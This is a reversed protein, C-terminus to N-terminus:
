LGKKLCIMHTKSSLTYRTLDSFGEDATDSDTVVITMDCPYLNYIFTTREPDYFSRLKCRSHIPYEDDRAPRIPSRTTSHCTVSYGKQELSRALRIAPYMCEETGIVDISKVDHEIHLDTKSILTECFTNYRQIDVCLRPDPYNAAFTQSAHTKQTKCCEDTKFSAFIPKNMAPEIDKTRSLYATQIDKRAFIALREDSMGNVLSAACFHCDDSSIYESLVDIFNLITQGTTLEDDVFIILRISDFIHHGNSAFLKQEIAHSHEEKFDTILFDDYGHERSTHIYKVDGLYSAVAAGIATATEAFGIVLISSPAIGLTDIQLALAQCMNDFADPKAPIHKAQYKNVLLNRRKKNNEREGFLCMTSINYNM